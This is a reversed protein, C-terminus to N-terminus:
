EIYYIYGVNFWVLWDNAKNETYIEPNPNLGDVWNSFYYQLRLDVMLDSVPSLKYRSGISSVVTWINGNDSSYGHPRGDSPALYKPFTTQTLGLPGLLSYAKPNYFSYQAGVSVFPAFGGVFETFDRVSFPYFELQMGVNTVEVSGRMAKLQEVGLSGNDKEVYNGFHQLETKSYSIESRIKFHDNFYTQRTFCGCSSDFALNLYHVFGVGIGTNGANTGLDYRAGYDSQFAVPGAIVGIESSYGFQAHITPACGFLVCIAFITKNFMLLSIKEFRSLYIFIADM